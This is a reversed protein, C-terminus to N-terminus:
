LGQLAGQAPLDDHQVSVTKFSSVGQPAPPCALPDVCGQVCLPPWLLHRPLPPHVGVEDDDRAKISCEVERQSPQIRISVYNEIIDWNGKRTPLIQKSEDFLM